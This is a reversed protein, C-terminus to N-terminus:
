GLYRLLFETLRDLTVELEPSLLPSGRLRAAQVGLLFIDAEPLEAKLYDFIVGISSNHTSFGSQRIQERKLLRLEGAAGGWDSADVIVITQPCAKIVPQIFNEPVPGCDFLAARTKGKLRAILMPGFRDDGKLINGVGLIATENKSKEKIDSM